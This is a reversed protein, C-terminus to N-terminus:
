SCISQASGVIMPSLGAKGDAMSRARRAAALGDVTSSSPSLPVPLSTNARAM